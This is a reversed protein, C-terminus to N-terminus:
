AARGKQNYRIARIIEMFVESSNNLRGTPSEDLGYERFVRMTEDYEDDNLWLNLMHEGLGEVRTKIARKGVKQKLSPLVKMMHTYGFENMLQVAENKNYKLRRFDEYVKRYKSATTYSYSLEEEVMDKFSPYDLLEFLRSHFIASLIRGMEYYAVQTTKDLEILKDLMMAAYKRDKNM